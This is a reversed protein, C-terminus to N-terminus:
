SRIEGEESIEGEPTRRKKDRGPPSSDELSRKRSPPIYTDRERRRDRGPPTYRSSNYHHPHLHTQSNRRPPPPPRSDDGPRYSDILPRRPSRERIPSSSQRAYRPSQVTSSSVHVPSRIEGEESRSGNKEMRVDHMENGNGTAGNEQHVQRDPDHPSVLSPTYKGKTKPDPLMNYLDVMIMIADKTVRSAFLQSVEYIM